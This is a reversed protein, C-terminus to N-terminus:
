QLPFSPFYNYFPYVEESAQHFFYYCSLSFRAVFAVVFAAVVVGDDGAEGKNGEKEVVVVDDATVVTSVSLIILGDNLGIM